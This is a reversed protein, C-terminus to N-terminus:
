LHQSQAVMRNMLYRTLGEVQRLQTYFLLERPRDDVRVGLREFCKKLASYLKKGESDLDTLIVVRKHTSAIREAFLSLEGRIPEVVGVGIDKLARVDNIGEVIVCVDSLSEMYSLFEELAEEGAM